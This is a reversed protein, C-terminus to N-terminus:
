DIDYMVLVNKFNQKTSKFFIEKRPWTKNLISSIANVIKAVSIELVELAM